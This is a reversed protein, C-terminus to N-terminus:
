FQLKIGIRLSSPYQFITGQGYFPNPFQIAQAGPIGRNTRWQLSLFEARVAPECALAAHFLWDIQQWREPTM